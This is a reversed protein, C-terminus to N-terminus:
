KAIWRGNIFIWLSNTGTGMNYVIDGDQWSGVSPCTTSRCEINNGKYSISKIHTNGSLIGETLKQWKYGCISIGNEYLHKTGCIPVDVYHTYQINNGDKKGRYFRFNTRRGCTDGNVINFLLGNSAYSLTCNGLDRVTNCIQRGHDWIAHAKYYYEGDLYQWIVNPNLGYLTIFIDRVNDIYGLKDIYGNPAILSSQSLLYSYKNFEKMPLMDNGCLAIGCLYMKGISGSRVWYRYNQSLKLMQVMQTKTTVGRLQIDYECIDAVTYQVGDRDEKDYFLFLNDAMNVVSVDEDGGSQIVVCPRNLKKFYNNHLSVNSDQIVVQGDEMHNSNFTIGKSGSIWIDANVINSTINGGLCSAIRIGKNYSGNNIANFDCVLGDGLFGFDITYLSEGRHIDISNNIVCGTVRKRDIYHNNSFVISQQFNSFTCAKIECCSAASFIAKLKSINNSFLLREIQTQNSSYLVEWNCVKEGKENVYWDKVNIEVVYGNTFLSDEVLRSSNDMEAVLFTGKEKETKNEMGSEGVLQIGYKVHLIKKIIYKGRPIFVQGTGKMTIAKNIADSCDELSDAVAGFWQPYARDMIWSGIVNLELGFIQSIPAILSTNNGKLDGNGTIIGGMFILTINSALLVSSNIVHISTVVYTSNSITSEPNFEPWDMILNHNQEM